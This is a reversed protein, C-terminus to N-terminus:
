HDKIVELGGESGFWDMVKALRKISSRIDTALSEPITASPSCRTYIHWSANELKESADLWAKYEERQQIAEQVSIAWNHKKMEKM